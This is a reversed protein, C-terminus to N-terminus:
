QFNKWFIVRRVISNTFIIFQALPMKYVAVMKVVSCTRDNLKYLNDYEAYPWEKLIDEIPVVLKEDKENWVCLNKKGVKWRYIKDLVKIPRTKKM